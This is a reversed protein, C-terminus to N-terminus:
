GAHLATGGSGAHGGCLGIQWSEAPAPWLLTRAARMDDDSMEAVVKRMDNSEREEAKFNRLQKLLYAENQGALKPYFRVPVTM